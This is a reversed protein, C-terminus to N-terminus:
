QSGDQENAARRRTKKRRNKKKRRDKGLREDELKLAQLDEVSDTAGLPGLDLQRREASNRRQGARRDELERKEILHQLETPVDSPDIM